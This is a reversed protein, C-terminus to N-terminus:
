SNWQREWCSEPRGGLGREILNFAVYAAGIRDTYGVGTQSLLQYAVNIEFRFQVWAASRRRESIWEEDLVTARHIEATDRWVGASAAPGGLGTFEGASLGGLRRMLDRHLVLLEGVVGAGADEDAEGVATRRGFEEERAALVRLMEARRPGAMTLYGAVHSLFSDHARASVPLRDSMFRRLFRVPFVLRDGPRTRGLVRALSDRSDLSWQVYVGRVRPSLRDLFPDYSAAVHVSGRDPCRTELDRPARERAPVRRVAGSSPAVRASVSEIDQRSWVSSFLVVLHWASSGYAIRYYSRGAGPGAPELRALADHAGARDVDHVHVSWTSLQTM